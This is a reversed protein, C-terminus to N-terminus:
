IKSGSAYLPYGGKPLLPVPPSKEADFSCTDLSLDLQGGAPMAHIANTCLNVLVQHIQSSNGSVVRKGNGPVVQFAINKPLTRNILGRVETLLLDLRFPKQEQNDRRSFDLIQKVLDRARGGAEVIHQLAQVTRADSKSWELALDSYGLISMLLNNFDHAIGGALVGLAEMKQSQFLQKELAQKVEEAQKRKTIDFLVVLHEGTFAGVLSAASAMVTKVTGDKCRISCEMPTFPAGTQRAKEMESFWSDMVGNRYQPDPYATPWWQALTPLDQKTYGFTQVFAPNLYTIEQQENNLAMPVDTGRIIAHSRAESKILAEEALKRATINFHSIVAGLREGKLPTVRMHFWRQEHPAHCPYEIGFEARTGSLVERIGIVVANAEEGMAFKSANSCVALYDMGISNHSLYHAGNNKGFERWARNVAIIIGQRDLVAIHEALSDIVALNFAESKKLAEEALKQETIDILTVM